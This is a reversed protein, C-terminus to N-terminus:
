WVFAVKKKNPRGVTHEYATGSYALAKAEAIATQRDACAMEYRYGDSSELTYYKINRLRWRKILDAAKIVGVATIYGLCFLIIIKTLIIM